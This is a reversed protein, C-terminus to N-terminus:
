IFANLVSERQAIACYSIISASVCLTVERYILNHLRKYFCNPNGLYNELLPKLGYVHKLNYDVAVPRQTSTLNAQSLVRTAGMNACKHSAYLWGHLQACIVPGLRSDNAQAFPM